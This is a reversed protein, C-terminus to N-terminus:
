CANFSVNAWELICNWRCSTVKLKLSCWKLTLYLWRWWTVKEYVIAQHFTLVSLTICRDWVLLYTCTSPCLHIFSFPVRPRSHFGDMCLGLHASRIRMIRLQPWHLWFFWEDNHLASWFVLVDICSDPQSSKIATIHLCSRSGAEGRIISIILIYIIINCYIMSVSRM